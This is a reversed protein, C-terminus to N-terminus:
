RNKNGKIKKGDIEGNTIISWEFPHRKEMHDISEKVLADNMEGFDHDPAGRKGQVSVSSIGTPYDGNCAQGCMKCEYFHETDGDGFRKSFARKYGHTKLWNEFDKEKM